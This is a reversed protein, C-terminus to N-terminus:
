QTNVKLKGVKYFGDNREADTCFYFTGTIDSEIGLEIDYDGGCINEPLKILIQEHSRGPLWKTIDIDTNFICSQADSTLRIKLPPRNYIPAVGVNNICLKLEIGDGAEASEPYEFSDIAFHYGMRDVWYDIKEKWENPVPLSKANFSSIHWELTLRIIEDIDWGKRRWEGLWWYSEFSVPAERWLESVKEIRDPYREFTHKPEGLGDGRWGVKCKQRVYHLLEPRGVQGILRTNKFNDTFADYLQQLLEKPYLFLNHGEGWSGPLCIDVADLTPDSDFREGIKAIAQSFLELFLPDLPSAKVRKGEPRKPYFIMEKLWDPIDDSERTSHPLLRFILTQGHQRAKEIMDEILAYNYVGREPEFEKWLVRFYAISTDPYYGEERGNQLVYDPVPYCEYHETETMNREPLVVMDSYLAEGRFHQFSMFGIYPNQGDEKKYKFHSTKNTTRLM